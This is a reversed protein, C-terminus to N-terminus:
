SILSLLEPFKEDYWHPQTEKANKPSNLNIGYEDGKHTISLFTKIKNPSTTSKREMKVLYGLALLRKNFEIVSMGANYKKLLETASHTAGNEANTYAIQPIGLSTLIPNVMAAYSADSLRLTHRVQEMAFFQARTEDEKSNPTARFSVSGNVILEKIRDNCWISFAPSLWRAFELAVDEHMWTGGNRGEVTKVLSGNNRTTELVNMFEKTSTLAFWDNVRKGFPKAMETANVMRTEGNDFSIPSGNYSFIKIANM